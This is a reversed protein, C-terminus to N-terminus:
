RPTWKKIFKTINDTTKTVFAFLGIPAPSARSPAPAPKSAAKSKRAKEVSAKAKAIRQTQPKWSEAIQSDARPAKEPEARPAPPPALPEPLLDEKALPRAYPADGPYSAPDDAATAATQARKHKEALIRRVQTEFEEVSLGDGHATAAASKNSVSAPQSQGTEAAVNVRRFDAIQTQNLLLSWLISAIWVAVVVAMARDLTQVAKVVKAVNPQNRVEHTANILDYVRDYTV